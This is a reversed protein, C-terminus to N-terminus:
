APSALAEALRSLFSRVTAEAVRHLVARDLLEGVSRLPVRYSTEIEIRSRTDGLQSVLLTGDLVPFISAAQGAEWRIPFAVQDGRAFADGIRVEVPVGIHPSAPGVTVVAARGDGTADRALALFGAGGDCLRSTVMAADAEVDVGFTLLTAVSEGHPSGRAM